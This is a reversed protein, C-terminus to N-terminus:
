QGGLAPMWGRHWLVCCPSSACPVEQGRIWCSLSTFADWTLPPLPHRSAAAKSLPSNSYNLVFGCCLAPQTVHQSSQRSSCRQCHKGASCPSERTRQSSSGASVSDLLSTLPTPLLRSGSWLHFLTSISFYAGATVFLLMLNQSSWGLLPAQQWSYRPIQVAVDFFHLTSFTKESAACLFGEM